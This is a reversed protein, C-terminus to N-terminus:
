RGRKASYGFFLPKEAGTPTTGYASYKVGNMVVIWEIRDIKESVVLKNTGDMKDIFLARGDVDYAFRITKKTGEAGGFSSADVTVYLSRGDDSVACYSASRIYHNIINVADCTNNNNKVMQATNDYTNASYQVIVFTAAMIIASLGMAILVEVLTMGKSRKM